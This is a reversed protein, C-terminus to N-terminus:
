SFLFLYYLLLVSTISTFFIFHGTFRKWFTTLFHWCPMTDLLVSSNKHRTQWHQQWGAVPFSFFLVQFLDCLFQWVLSQSSRTSLTFEGRPERSFLQPQQWAGVHGGCNLVSGALVPRCQLCRCRDGRVQMRVRGGPSEDEEKKEGRLRQYVKSEKWRHERVLLQTGNQTTRILDLRARRPAWCWPHIGEDCQCACM